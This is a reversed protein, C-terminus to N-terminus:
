QHECSVGTIVRMGLPSTRPDWDALGHPKNSPVPVFGPHMRGGFSGPVASGATNTGWGVTAWHKCINSVGVALYLM